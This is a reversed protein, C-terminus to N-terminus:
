QMYTNLLYQKYRSKFINLSKSNRIACPLSNWLHPGTYIITRQFFATHSKPLHYNNASRTSYNHFNSNLFFLELLSKPLLCHHSLYMFIGVQFNYMDNVRLKSARARPILRFATPIFIIQLFIQINSTCELLKQSCESHMGFIRAWEQGARINQKHEFCELHMRLPSIDFPM